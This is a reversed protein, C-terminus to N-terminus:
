YMKVAVGNNRVKKKEGAAVCEWIEEQKGGWISTIDRQQQEKASFDEISKGFWSKDRM